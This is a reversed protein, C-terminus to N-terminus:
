VKRELDHTANSAVQYPPPAEVLSSPGGLSRSLLERIPAVRAIGIVALCDSLIPALVPAEARTPDSKSETATAQCISHNSLAPWGL